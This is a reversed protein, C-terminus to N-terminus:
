SPPDGRRRRMRALEDPKPEHELRDVRRELAAVYRLIEEPFIGEGDAFRDNLPQRDRALEEIADSEIEDWFRSRRLREERRRQKARDRRRARGREVWRIV